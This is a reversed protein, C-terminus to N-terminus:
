LSKAAHGCSSRAFLCLCFLDHCAPLAEGRVAQLWHSASYALVRGQETIGRASLPMDSWLVVDLVEARGLSLSHLKTGM